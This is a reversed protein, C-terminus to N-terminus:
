PVDRWTVRAVAQGIAEPTVGYIRGLHVRSAGHAAFQRIERVRDATLKNPRGHFGGEPRNVAVIECIGRQAVGYKAALGRQTVGGAAYEARIAAQDALTLKQLSRGKRTRDDINDRQTGLFLHDLAICPPNDCRHLVQMGRPIPGNAVSWVMRHAYWGRFGKRDAGVRGYGFSSLLGEWLVCPTDLVTPPLM